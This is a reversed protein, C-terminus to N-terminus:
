YTFLIQVATEPSKDLRRYADHAQALPVRQTILREPRHQQLQQWAVQLRRPKHWRGQWQPAIHSVQSSRITIHQRHFRGGLDLDARKQGYWSGILIRGNYGVVALATTLAQPNGSLEYVLDAGQYADAATPALAAVIDAAAATAPDLAVHAGLQQSWHRRLPHADLTVLSTLPLRALLATTLLGVIGQGLVIVQEGIMPHGDMLFSVATEMNPLFVATEPSMGPPLPLLDAPRAVFHSTHPQFAFVQRGLWSDDVDDGCAIVAGVAAYGYALPYTLEGALAKITEDAAMQAPMQGRYILSETGGSIASVATQVLVEDRGPQPCAEERVSVSYAAEFYLTYRRDM